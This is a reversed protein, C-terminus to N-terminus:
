LRRGGKEMEKRVTERERRRAGGFSPPLFRLQYRNSTHGLSTVLRRAFEGKGERLSSCIVHISLIVPLPFDFARFKQGFFGAARYEMRYGIGLERLMSM